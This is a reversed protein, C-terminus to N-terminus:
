NETKTKLPCSSFGFISYLPCSGALATVLMVAGVALLVYGLVGSVTGTFFLIALVAAIIVRIIRDLNGENKKM